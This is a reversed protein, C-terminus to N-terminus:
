AGRLNLISAEVAAATAAPREMPFLHSGDLWTIRGKTLRQTMEMGVQAMEASRLGGVFAVPCKLPHRRLLGDLNDPLTNYIATEVERDFPLWVAGQREEFANVYDTLVQPLWRAFAKKHQLHALADARNPWHDRRQRSIRGPSVAGVFQTRKIVGLTTAKWGGLVPADVLVVGAVREGLQGAAMVSLYGGLSHGVLWPKHALAQTQIHDILQQVLHPWNNSVPYRADHGFRDM